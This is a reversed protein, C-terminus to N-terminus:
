NDFDGSSLAWHMTVPCPVESLVPDLPQLGPAKVGNQQESFSHRHALCKREEFCICPSALEGLCLNQSTYCNVCAERKSTVQATVTVLIFANQREQM